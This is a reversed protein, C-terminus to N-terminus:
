LYNLIVSELLELFQIFNVDFKFCFWVVDLVISIIMGYFILQIYVRDFYNMIFIGLAMFLILLNFFGFKM